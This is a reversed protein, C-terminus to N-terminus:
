GALYAVKDAAPQYGECHTYMDDLLPGLHAALDRLYADVPGDFDSGFTLLPKFGCGPGLVIVWRAYHVTGIRAIARIIEDERNRLVGRLSGLETEKVRAVLTVASQRM